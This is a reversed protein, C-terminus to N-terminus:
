AYLTETMAGKSCARRLLSCPALWCSLSSSPSRKEETLLRWSSCMEGPLKLVSPSCIHPCGHKTSCEINPHLLYGLGAEQLGSVGDYPDRVRTNAARIEPRIPALTGIRGPPLYP